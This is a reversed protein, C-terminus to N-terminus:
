ALAVLMVAGLLAAGASAGIRMAGSSSPKPDVGTATPGVSAVANFGGTIVATSTEAVEASGIKNAAAQFAAFTNSGNTPANISGVM